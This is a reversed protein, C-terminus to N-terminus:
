AVKASGKDGGGGAPSSQRSAGARLHLLPELMGRLGKEPAWVVVNIKLYLPKAECM